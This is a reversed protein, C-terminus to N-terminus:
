ICDFYYIMESKTIACRFNWSTENMKKGITSVEICFYRVCDILKENLQWFVKQRVNIFSEYFTINKFNIMIAYDVVVVPM